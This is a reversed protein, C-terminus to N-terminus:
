QREKLVVVAERLEEIERNLAAVEERMAAKKNRLETNEERMKAVESNLSRVEMELREVEQRAGSEDALAAVTTLEAIRADKADIEARAADVADRVRWLQGRLTAVLAEMGELEASKAGAVSTLKAIQETMASMESELAAANSSSSRLADLERQANALDTDYTHVSEELQKRILEMAEIQETKRQLEATLDDAKAAAQRLHDVESKLKQSSLIRKKLKTNETELETVRRQLAAVDLADTQSM